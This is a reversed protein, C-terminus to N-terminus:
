NKKNNKKVLAHYPFNQHDVVHNKLVAPQIEPQSILAQLAQVPNRLVAIGMQATPHASKDPFRTACGWSRSCTAM